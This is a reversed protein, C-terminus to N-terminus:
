PKWDRVPIMHTKLFESFLLLMATAVEIGTAWNLFSVSGGSYLTGADGIGLFNRLFAGEAALAVFGLIAFAGVGSSELFEVVPHPTLAHYDRYSGVAYLLLLAGGLVVGGQFGGGPTVFGFAVLWLGIGFIATIAVLGFSRIADSEVSDAPVHEEEQDKRLLLSVGLVSAFLIFEEGLTDFGRYDFVTAGVVNTTHRESVVVLNLVKGYPWDYHGFAPLGAISWFLLAALGSAAVCFIALRARRSV